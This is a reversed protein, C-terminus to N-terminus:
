RLGEIYRTTSTKRADDNAGMPSPRCTKVEFTVCCEGEGSIEPKTGYEALIDEVIGLGLGSSTTDSRGTMGREPLGKNSGDSFGPGDDQISLRAKDGVLDVQIMVRSAAWKRANDLLNGMVEGFDHPDM